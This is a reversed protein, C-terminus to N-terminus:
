GNGEAHLKDLHHFGIAAAGLVGAQDGHHSLVVDCAKAAPPMAQSLAAERVPDLLLGGARTVGGGLVVLEPECVNIIVAVMRGLMATTEGWVATALVDGSSAHEVVDKATVSDLSRLSSESGWGQLAEHARAAIATGSVYAEACGRAGCGCPRGQWDVVVHGLEGGQGAAGRFLDGDIVVGGGFGTSVTLYVLNRVGWGGWRYEGLAAATADNEVYAPLGLRDTVLQGLPVEDWGPLGPPGLIVGTRPDLPGGCGIGVAGIDPHGAEALAKEGLDLLRGVVAQPGDHVATGISLFSSQLTGDAAVVGAALKTGGVDLALVSPEPM